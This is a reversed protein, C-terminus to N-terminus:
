ECQKTNCMKLMYNHIEEFENDHSFLLHNFANLLNQPEYNESNITDYSEHYKCMIQSVKQLYECKLFNCEVHKKNKKDRKDIKNFDPRKENNDNFYAILDDYNKKYEDDPNPPVIKGEIVVANFYTKVSNNQNSKIYLALLRTKLFNDNLIFSQGNLLQQESCVVTQTIQAEKMLEFGIKFSHRQYNYCYVDKIATINEDNSGLAYFTLSHLDIYKDFDIFMLIEQDEDSVVCCHNNNNNSPKVFLLKQSPLTSLQASCNMLHCRKIEHSINYNVNNQQKEFRQLMEIIQEGDFGQNVLQLFLETDVHIVNINSDTTSTDQVTAVSTDNIKDKEDDIADKSSHSDNNNKSDINDLWEIAATKDNLLDNIIEEDEHDYKSDNRDNTNKTLDITEDQALKRTSIKNHYIAQISEDAQRSRLDYFDKNINDPIANIVDSESTKSVDKTTNSTKPTPKETNGAATLEGYDTPAANSLCKGM